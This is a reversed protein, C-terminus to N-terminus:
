ATLLKVDKRMMGVKVSQADKLAREIVSCSSTRQEPQAPTTQMPLVCSVMVYVLLVTRKIM